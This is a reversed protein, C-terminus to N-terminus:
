CELQHRRMGGAGDPLGPLAAPLCGPSRERRLCSFTSGLTRSEAKRLARVMLIRDRLGKSILGEQYAYPAYAGYQIAPDVLGNGIAMGALKIPRALEGSKTAHLIRSSM